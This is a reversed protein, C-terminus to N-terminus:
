EGAKALAPRAAIAEAIARSAAAVGSAGMPAGMAVLVAEITGLTGLVMPPNLYGMHGIRFAKGEYPELALGLTLGAEREAMARLAEADISNSLVTTVSDARAAPDVVVFELGGPASWAEVAARVGRALAAHRHWITELGEEAIM